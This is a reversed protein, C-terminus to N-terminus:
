RGSGLSSVAPIAICKLLGQQAQPRGPAYQPQGGGHDELGTLDVALRDPTGSM